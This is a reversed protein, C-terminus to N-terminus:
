RSEVISIRNESRASGIGGGLSGLITEMFGKTVYDMYDSFLTKIGRPSFRREERKSPALTKNFNELMKGLGNIMNSTQEFYKATNQNQFSVLQQISANIADLKGNTMFLTNTLINVGQNISAAVARANAESNRTSVSSIQSVLHEMGRLQANGMHMISQAVGKNGLLMIQESSMKAADDGSPAEFADEVDSEYADYMDRNIRDISYQGREIDATAARFANYAKRSESAAATNAGQQARLSLKQKRVANRTDRMLGTINASRSQSSPIANFKFDQNKPVVDRWRTDNSSRKPAM